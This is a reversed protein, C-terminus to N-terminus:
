HKSSNELTLTNDEEESMASGQTESDSRLGLRDLDFDGLKEETPLLDVERRLGARETDIVEGLALPAHLDKRLDM